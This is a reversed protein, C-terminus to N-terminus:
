KWSCTVGNAGLFSMFELKVDSLLFITVVVHVVFGSYSQVHFTNAWGQLLVLVEKIVLFLLSKLVNIECFSSDKM